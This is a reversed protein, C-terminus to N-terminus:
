VMRGRATPKGSGPFCHAPSIALEVQLDAAKRDKAHHKNSPHIHTWGGRLSSSTTKNGSNLANKIRCKLYFKPLLSRFHLHHPMATVTQPCHSYPGTDESSEEPRKLPQPSRNAWVNLKLMRFVGRKGAQRPSAPHELSQTYPKPSTPSGQM